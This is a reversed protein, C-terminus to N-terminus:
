EWDLMCQGLILGVAPCWFPSRFLVGGVAASLAGGGSMEVSPPRGTEGLLVVGRDASILSLGGEWVRFSISARYPSFLIRLLFSSGWGVCPWVRSLALSLLVGADNVCVPPALRGQSKGKYFIYLSPASKSINKYIIHQFKESRKALDYTRM